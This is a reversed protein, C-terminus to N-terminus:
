LNYKSGYKLIIDDAVLKKRDLYTNCSEYLFKIASVGSRGTLRITYFDNYGATLRTEVNCSKNTINDYIFNDFQRILERSGSHLAIYPYKLDTKTSGYYSVTGDGDIMGRWFDKNGALVPSVKATLSKRPVVGFDILKESLKNSTLNVGYAPGNSKVLLGSNKTSRIKLNIPINTKLFNRFKEIHKIDREQLYLAIKSDKKTSSNKFVCGDAMLFGTWYASSETINDFVGDDLLYHAWYPRVSNERNIKQVAGVCLGRKDCIEKTSLGDLFDRIVLPKEEPKIRRNKKRNRQIGNRELVSYLCRNKIDFFTEISRFDDGRLYMDCLMKEQERSLKRPPTM